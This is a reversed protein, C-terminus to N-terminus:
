RPLPKSYWKDIVVEALKNQPTFGRNYKGGMKPNTGWYWWYLGYFWEKGWFTNLLATYFDAQLKTNVEGRAVHEWPRIAAGDASTCGAEPFIVLKDQSKQFVEMENVWQVWGALLEDYTPEMKKTLPFYANIGIFDLDGWFRIDMYRDWHAAYTMLGFYKSRLKKIMDSWMYGKVTATTSLETGVCFMEVKERNAIKIYHMMYKTYERFWKEWDPERACAIEGRWSGDSQDIIDLHPKLMVKLGLDHARRIAQILAKDSPTRDGRHIDGSWCTSQYWTVLVSMWNGDLEVLKEISENSAKTAYGTHSWTAYGVGQQFELPPKPPKRTMVGFLTGAVLLLILAPILKKLAGGGNQSSTTKSTKKAM